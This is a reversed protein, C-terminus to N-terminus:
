GYISLFWKPIFGRQAHGLYVRDTFLVVLMHTYRWMRSLIMNTCTYLWQFEIPKLCLSNRTTKNHLLAFSSIIPYFPDFHFPGLSHNNIHWFMKSMLPFINREAITFNSILSLDTNQLSEASFLFYLINTIHLLIMMRWINSWWYCLM